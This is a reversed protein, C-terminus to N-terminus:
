ATGGAAPGRRRYDAARQPRTTSKKPLTSSPVPKVPTAASTASSQVPAVSAPSAPTSPPTLSLPSGPITNNSLAQQTSQSLGLNAANNAASNAVNIPSSPTIGAKKAYVKALEPKNAYQQAYAANRVKETDSYGGVQKGASQLQAFKAKDMSSNPNYSSGHLKKFLNLEEQSPSTSATAAEPKAKATPTVENDAAAAQPKETSTVSADKAEPSAAGGLNIIKKNMAAAPFTPVGPIDSVMGNNSQQPLLGAPLENYTGIVNGKDDTLTFKEIISQYRNLIDYYSKDFSGM